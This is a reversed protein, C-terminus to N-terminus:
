NIIVLADGDEVSDGESVKIEKVVGSVTSEIANEMKMTELVVVISGKRIRDGVNIPVKVVTGQMPAKIVGKAEEVTERVSLGYDEVILSHAERANRIKEVEVKYEVDGVVVKLEEGVQSPLKIEELEKGVTGLDEIKVDHEEGNLKMRFTVTIGQKAESPEAKGSVNEKDERVMGEKFLRKLAVSALAVVGLVSFVSIVGILTILLGFELSM